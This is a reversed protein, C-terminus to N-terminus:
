DSERQGPVKLRYPGPKEAPPPPTEPEEELVIKPKNPDESTTGSAATDPSVPTTPEGEGEPEAPTSATAPQTMNPLSDAPTEAEELSVPNPAAPAAPAPRMAPPRYTPPPPRSRQREEREELPLDSVSLGEVASASSEPQNARLAAPVSAAAPAAPDPSEDSLLRGALLMMSFAAAAGGGGILAVRVTGSPKRAAPARMFPRSHSIAHPTESPIPLSISSRSSESPDTARGPGTLLTTDPLLEANVHGVTALLADHIAQRQLELRKGVVRRLLAAVSGTSVLTREQVLHRELAIRMADASQFRDDPKNALAQMVIAELGASYKPLKSRPPPVKCQMVLGLTHHRDVGKFLREGTTLEYLVVGLSFVDSRRDVSQGRAQEPSMYSYKGHPAETLSMGSSESAKALGFDAVKIRGDLGILINHPSVDRHVIGELEGDWGRLEHAAHLGKATDAVIRVAMEAPIPRRKAAESFLTELSEGEVWEMTLWLVGEHEAVEYVRVVNDHEISRVLQGEKLFMARFNSHAAFEPRMVKIAVLREKGSAPSEERAVWVSGMGGQGLPVLLQYRGLTAGTALVFS